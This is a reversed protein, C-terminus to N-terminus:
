NELARLYKTRIKTKTSVEAIDVNRRIRAERLTEGIPPM